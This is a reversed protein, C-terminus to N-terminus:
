MCGCDELKTRDYIFHTNSLEVLGKAVKQLSLFTTLYADFTLDQDVNLYLLVRQNPAAFDIFETLHSNLDKAAVEFGDVYIRNGKRVDVSINYYHQHYELNEKIYPKSHFANFSYVVKQFNKFALTKSTSDMYSYFNEAKDNTHMGNAKKLQLEHIKPIALKLPTNKDVHFIWNTTGISNKRNVELITDKDTIELLFYIPSHDKMEAVETYDSQVLAVPHQNCSIFLFLVILLQFFKNM